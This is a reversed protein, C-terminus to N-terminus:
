IIPLDPNTKDPGLDKGTALESSCRLYSVNESLLFESANRSMVSLVFGWYVRQLFRFVQM